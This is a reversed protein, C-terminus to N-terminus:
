HLLSKETNVQSDSRESFRSFMKRQNKDADRWTTLLFPSVANSTSKLFLRVEKVTDSVTSSKNLFSRPLNQHRREIICFNWSNSLLNFNKLENSSSFTKDM